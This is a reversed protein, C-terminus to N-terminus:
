TQWQRGALDGRRSWLGAAAVAAAGAFALQVVPHLLLAPDSRHWMASTTVAAWGISLVGAALLADVYTAAWLTVTVFALAPLLWVVAVWWVSGPLVLGVLAAVPLTSGLVAAIRVLCLRVLSYPTARALEWAPDTHPGYAAAVGAVPLLPALTLFLWSGRAGGAGAAALALLLCVVIAALWPVRLSPAAAVLRSTEQSVGLQRLLREVMSARPRDLVDTIEDWVEVLRGEDVAGVSPVLGRCAVCSLLHDEVFSEDAASLLGGAYSSLEDVALHPGPLSITM